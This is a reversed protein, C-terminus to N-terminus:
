AMAEKMKKMLLEQVEPDKLLVSMVDTAKKQETEQKIVENATERDLAFGCRNCFKHTTPNSSGCKRCIKPELLPAKIERRVEIHNVRLIAEDTDKGSLHVYIGAMKSSQTWGLYNKMQADSLVGALITARSHRLLHPYVRKKVGADSTADKLIKAIRGYTLCEKRQNNYWLYAEPDNNNPHQNLWEQLYPASSVILIKRMGTKGQVTLRAGHPEFSVHKIKMLGIESVRCGSEALSAFLARDRSTKCAQIIRVVEDETLLEEPLKTQNQPIHISIWSVEPPYVRKETIGRVFRYLKRIMVKFCKKSEPALSTQELEAIVKRIDSERAEKFPKKLMRSFKRLDLIYRGIKAVGIGESLLYDKFAIISAKNEKSIDTSEQVLEIQREMSRKYNHLDVKM